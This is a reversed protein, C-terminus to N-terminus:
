KFSRRRLSAVAAFIVALLFLILLQVACVRAFVEPPRGMLGLLDTLMDANASITSFTTNFSTFDAQMMWELARDYLLVSGAFGGLCSLLMVLLASFSMQCWIRGKGVGLRYKVRGAPIQMWIFILLIMLVALIWLASVIRWVFEASHCIAEIGPIISSYGQDYYHLMGGFGAAELEAEFADISGNPLIFTRDFKPVNLPYVERLARQPIIVTNPHINDADNAWADVSYIGVVTYSGNNVSIHDEQSDQESLYEEYQLVTSGYIQNPVLMQDRYYVNGSNSDGYDSLYFSLDLADGVKIGNQAAFLDSVIAVKARSTLEEETFFSGELLQSREDIFARLANPHDASLIPLASRSIRIIESLNAWYGMSDARLYAEPDGSYKACLPLTRYALDPTPQHYYLLQKTEWLDTEAADLHTNYDPLLVLEGQQKSKENYFGWLLYTEGQEICSSSNTLNLHTTTIVLRQPKEIDERLSVTQEVEFIYYYVNVKVRNHVVKGNVVESVSSTATRNLIVDTCRAAFVGISQPFNMSSNYSADAYTGSILPTIAPDYAVLRSHEDVFLAIESQFEGSDIARFLPNKDSTPRDLITGSGMYNMGPNTPVYGVTTYGAEVQGRMYESALVLGHAISLLATMIALALCIALTRMPTRRLQKGEQGFLM